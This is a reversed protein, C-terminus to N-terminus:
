MEVMRILYFLRVLFVLADVCELSAHLPEARLISLGKNMETRKVMDTELRGKLEEGRLRKGRVWLFFFTCIPRM